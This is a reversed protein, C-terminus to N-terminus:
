AAKAPRVSKRQVLWGALHILLILLNYIVFVIIAYTQAPLGGFTEKFVPPYAFYSYNGNVLPNLRYVFYNFLNTFILAFFLGQRTFRYREVALFYIVSWVMVFHGVFYTFNTLHPFYFPYIVPFLLALFGGFTGWYVSITRVYYNRTTYALILAPIATRCIYLPLGDGLTFTGALGYWTYQSIQELILSGLFLNRLTKKGSARLDDRRLFITLGGAALLVLLVFHVPSFLPFVYDEWAGRTFYRLADM